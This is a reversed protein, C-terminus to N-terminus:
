HSAFLMRFSIWGKGERDFEMGGNDLIANVKLCPRGISKHGRRQYANKVHSNYLIAASAGLTQGAIIPSNADKNIDFGLWDAFEGELSLEKPDIDFLNLRETLEQRLHRNFATEFAEIAKLCVPDYTTLPDHFDM